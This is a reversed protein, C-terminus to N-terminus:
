VGRRRRSSVKAARWGTSRQFGSTGFFAASYPPLTADGREMGLYRHILAFIPLPIPKPIAMPTAIPTSISLTAM